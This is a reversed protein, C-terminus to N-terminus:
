RDPGNPDPTPGDTRLTAPGELAEIRDKEQSLDKELDDLAREFYEVPFGKTKRWLGVQTGNLSFVAILYSGAELATGVQEVTTEWEQFEETTPRDKKKKRKTM